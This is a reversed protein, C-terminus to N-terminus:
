PEARGLASSIAAQATLTIAQLRRKARGASIVADPDETICDYLASLLDPAAAILRSNARQVAAGSARPSPCTEFVAAVLAGDKSLVRVDDVHWPGPTHNYLEPM